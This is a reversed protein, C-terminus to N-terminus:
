EDRGAIEAQWPAVRREVAGILYNLGIAMVMLIVIPVFMRPRHRFQQGLHHHDRGPGLNSTFFEAIVM